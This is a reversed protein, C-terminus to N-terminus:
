ANALGSEAGREAWATRWWRSVKQVAEAMPRSWLVRVHGALRAAQQPPLKLGSALVELDARVQTLPARV